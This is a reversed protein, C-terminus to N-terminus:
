RTAAHQIREWNGKLYLIGSALTWAVTIFMVSYILPFSAAYLADPAIWSFRDDLSRLTLFLLIVIIATTQSIMKHKGGRDASLVVGKSLALLRLGTILLERAVILVVMWASILGLELFAFFASLILIKDAIPDMLKGFDSTAGARRAVYGDLMDTLAAIIFVLLALLQYVWGTQFIFFM